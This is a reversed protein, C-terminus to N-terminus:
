KRKARTPHRYRKSLYIPLWDPKLRPFDHRVGVLYLPSNYRGIRYVHTDRLCYLAVASTTASKSSPPRQWIKSWSSTENKSAHPTVVKERCRPTSASRGAELFGAPGHASQQMHDQALGKDPARTHHVYGLCRRAMTTRAATQPLAAM